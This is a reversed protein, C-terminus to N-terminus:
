KRRAAMYIAVIVAIIAIIISGYAVYTATALSSQLNSVQTNLRSITSTLNGISLQLSSLQSSTAYPQLASTLYSALNVLGPPEYFSLVPAGPYNLKVYVTGPYPPVWSINYFGESGTVVSVNTNTFTVNDYSYQLTVNAYAIPEHTVPDTLNGTIVIPQTPTGVVYQTPLPAVASGPPPPLAAVSYGAAALLQAATTPSYPDSKVNPNVWSGYPPAWDTAGPVGQGLLLSDIILQRPILYSFARRIDRAAQAANAPNAQGAPTAVGTGFIPDKMNVGMEQFGLEPGSIVNAGISKLTSAYPALAYNTDLENVIGTKYASIAAEAGNIWVVNYQQVTFQGLAELGTANWYNNYRVLHATNTTTDFGAFIYPGSGFPGSIPKGNMPDNGSDVAKVVTGNPYTDPGSATSYPNSSWDAPAFYGLYHMPLPSITTWTQNFFSYPQSLDITFTNPGTATVYFNVPPASPSSQNITITSGSLSIGSDPTVPSTGNLHSFVFNAVSPSSFTFHGVTGLQVLMSGLGVYGSTPNFLSEYTFVFDDATVPVGDQFNTPRFTITWNLGNPTSTISNALSLYYTLTRTDIEQLSSFVPAYMFLAYFSNSSSVPLPNLNGQPFVNGAEALTLTSVGSYHQIDPFTVENWTNNGGYDQINPNRAIVWNTYYIVDNPSDNHVIAQVQWIDQKALTLNTTTEAQDILQNVQTNNYLYYNNGTPAWNSCTGLYQYLWGDPVISTSGWGIFGADYGGQSFTAGTQSCSTASTFFMRPILEAFTVYAVQANIGVQAFSSAIISAYQRRVPNSTPALLTMSFIPQSQAFANVAVPTVASFIIAYAAVALVAGLIIEKKPSM